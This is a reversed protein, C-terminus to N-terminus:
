LVTNQPDTAATIEAEEKLLTELRIVLPQLILKVAMKNLIYVMLGVFILIGYHFILSHINNNDHGLFFLAFGTMPPLIYWYLVTSLIRVENKLYILHQYLYPVPPLTIDAAATNKRNQLKLIIAIASLVVIFAGTRSYINAAFCCIPLFILLLVIAAGIERRNRRRIKKKLTEIESMTNDLINGTQLPAKMKQWASQLLEDNM